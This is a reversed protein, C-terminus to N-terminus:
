HPGGYRCSRTASLRTVVRLVGTRVPSPGHLRAPDTADLPRFRRSRPASVNAEDFAVPSQPNIRYTCRTRSCKPCASSARAVGLGTLNRSSPTVKDKTSSGKRAACSLRLATTGVLIGTLCPPGSVERCHSVNLNRDVTSSRSILSSSIPVWRDAAARLSKSRSNGSYSYTSLPPAVLGTVLAASLWNM